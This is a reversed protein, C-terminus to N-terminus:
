APGPGEFSVPPARQLRSPLMCFTAPGSRPSETVEFGLVVEKTRFEFVLWEGSAQRAPWVLAPERIKRRPSRGPVVGVGIEADGSGGCAQGAPWGASEQSSVLQARRRTPDSAVGRFVAM